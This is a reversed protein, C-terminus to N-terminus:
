MLTGEATQQRLEQSKRNKNNNNIKFLNIIM